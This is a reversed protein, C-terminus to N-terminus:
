EKFKNNEKIERKFCDGLEIGTVFYFSMENNSMKLLQPSKIAFYNGVFDKLEQHAYINYYESLKRLTNLYISQLLEPNLNYGHLNNEFPTSRNLHYAQTDLLFRVLVGLGFLGKRIEDSFFNGNENLFNIFEVKNFRAQYGEDNCENQNAVIVNGMDTKITNTKIIQLEQLYYILMIAEKVVESRKKRSDAKFSVKIKKMIFSFITEESIREGKFISQVAELFREDFFDKVIEFTFNLDFVGEKTEIADKFLRNKNVVQPADSFLVKFRSPLVEELALKIRFAANQTEFFILNVAFYDNMDGIMRMIRNEARARRELTNQTETANLSTKILDILKSLNKFDRDVFPQPIILYPKRYFSSRLNEMIFREGLELTIAEKSSIPYNRWNKDQDFFGAVFGPKDVTSFSFPAAFGYVIQEVSGTVSCVKKNALSKSTQTKYKRESGSKLILERIISFDRLHLEKDQYLIRFSIGIIQDAIEMVLIQKISNRVLSFYNQSCYKSISSFIKKETEISVREKGITEKSLRYSEIEKFRVKLKAIKKKCNIFIDKKKAISVKTSFTVDGGNPPGSRFAYQRYSDTDKGILPLDFEKLSCVFDNEDETIKFVLLLMQYDKGPFMNEIYLDVPDLGRNQELQWHGIQAIAKDQM